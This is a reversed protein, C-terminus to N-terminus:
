QYALIARVDLDLVQGPGHRLGGVVDVRVSRVVFLGGALCTATSVQFPFSGSLYFSLGILTRIKVSWRRWQNLMWHWSEIMSLKM